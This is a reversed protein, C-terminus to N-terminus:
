LPAPVIKKRPPPPSINIHRTFQWFALIKPPVPMDMGHWNPPCHGRAGGPERAGPQTHTISWRLKVTFRVNHPNCPWSLSHLCHLTANARFIYAVGSFLVADHHCKHPVISVHHSSDQINYWGKKLINNIILYPTLLTNNMHTTRKYFFGTVIQFLFPRISM